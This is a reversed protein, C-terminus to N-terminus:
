PETVRESQRNRSARPLLWRGDPSVVAKWVGNADGAARFLDGAEKFKKISARWAELTGAKSVEIAEQYAKEAAVTRQQEQPGRHASTGAVLVMSSTSLLMWLLQRPFGIRHSMRPRKRENDPTLATM